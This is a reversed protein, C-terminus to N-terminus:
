SSQGLGLEPAIEQMAEISLTLFESQDLGLKEHEAIIGRNVSAAFAKDKMKKKLSKAKMGSMKEPRVLAAAMVLGTVTEACRLAFDLTTSPGPAHNLESAHAQIARVAEPPLQDQLMQASELGHRSYDDQTLTYDLDHLLGTLGWTEVDQDLRQALSRMVAETALSHKVLNDEQVKERVMALAKERNLM